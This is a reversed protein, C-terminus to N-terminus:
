VSFCKLLFYLLDWDWNQRCPINSRHSTLPRVSSKDTIHYMSFFCSMVSWYTLFVFFFGTGESNGYWYLKLFLEVAGQQPFFVFRYHFNLEPCPFHFNLRKKITHYFQTTKEHLNWSGGSNEACLFWLIVEQLASIERKSRTQRGRRRWEPRGRGSWGGPWIDWHTRWGDADIQAYYVLRIYHM